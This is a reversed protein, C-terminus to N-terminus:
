VRCWVCCWWLMLNPRLESLLLSLTSALLPHTQAKLFAFIFYAISWGDAVGTAKLSHFKMQLWFCTHCQASPPLASLPPPHGSVAEFFLSLAKLVVVVTM